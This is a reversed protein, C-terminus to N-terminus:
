YLYVQITGITYTYAYFIVVREGARRRAELGRSFVYEYIMLARCHALPSAYSTEAGLVLKGHHVKPRKLLRKDEMDDLRGLKLCLM